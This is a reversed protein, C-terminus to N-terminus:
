IVKEALIKSINGRSMVKTEIIETQFFDKIITNIKEIDFPKCSFVDIAVYGNEPWTHISIHSEELLIFGTAGFPQFQKYAEEVKGLQLEDVITNLIKKIPEVFSSKESNCQYIDWITHHGINPLNESM